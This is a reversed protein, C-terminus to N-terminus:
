QVGGEPEMDELPKSNVAFSPIMKVWIDLTIYLLAAVIEMDEEAPTSEKSMRMLMMLTNLAAHNVQNYVERDDVVVSSSAFTRLLDAIANMREVSNRETAWVGKAAEILKEKM